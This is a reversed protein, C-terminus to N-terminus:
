RGQSAQCATERRPAEDCEDKNVSQSPDVGDTPNTSGPNPGRYSGGRVPRPSSASFRSLLNLHFPASDRLGRGASLPLMQEFAVEGRGSRRRWFFEPVCGGDGRRRALELAGAVRLSILAM